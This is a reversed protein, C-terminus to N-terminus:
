LHDHSGKGKKREACKQLMAKIEPQSLLVPRGKVVKEDEALEQKLKRIDFKESM